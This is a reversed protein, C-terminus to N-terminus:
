LDTILAIFGMFGLFTLIIGIAILTDKLEVPYVKKM